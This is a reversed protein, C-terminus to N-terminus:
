YKQEDFKNYVLIVNQVCYLKGDNVFVLSFNIFFYVFYNMNNYFIVLIVVVGFWVFCWEIVIVFFFNVFVVFFFIVINWDFIIILNFFGLGFFLGILIVLILNEFVIWIMWNFIFFVIFFYGLLWYYIVM